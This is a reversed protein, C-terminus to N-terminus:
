EIIKKENTFRPSAIAIHFQFFIPTIPIHIDATRINITFIATPSPLQIDKRPKSPGKIIVSSTLGCHDSNLHFVGCLM